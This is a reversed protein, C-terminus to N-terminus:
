MGAPPGLGAAPGPELGPPAWCSRDPRRRRYALTDIGPASPGWSLDHGRIDWSM